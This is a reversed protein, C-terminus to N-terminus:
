EFQMDNDGAELKKMMKGFKADLERDRSEKKQPSIQNDDFMNHTIMYTKQKVKDIVSLVPLRDGLVAVYRDVAKGDHRCIYDLLYSDQEDDSLSFYREINEPNAMFSNYVSSYINRESFPVNVLRLHIPRLKKDHLESVASDINVIPQNGWWGVRRNVEMCMYFDVEAPLIDGKDRLYKRSEKLAYEEADVEMIMNFYNDVAIGTRAYNPFSGAIMSQVAMKQILDKSLNDVGRGTFFENYQQWHRYEHFCQKHISVYDAVDVSGTLRGKVLMEGGIVCKNTVCNYSGNTGVSSYRWVAGTDASMKDLLGCISGYVVDYALGM